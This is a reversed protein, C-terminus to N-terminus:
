GISADELEAEFILVSVGDVTETLEKRWARDYKASTQTLSNGLTFSPASPVLEREPHARKIEPRPMRKGTPGLSLIRPATRWSRWEPSIRRGTLASGLTLFRTQPIEIYETGRRWGEVVADRNLEAANYGRSWTKWEGGEKIFYVGSQVVTIGDHLESSWEGLAKGTPLDLPVTSFIGDTAFMIVESPALCAARLLQARTASTILGAWEIQYFPPRKEDDWGITQALKGYLSNLGLKLAWEAPNGEAKWQQRVDYMSQVWAFPADDYLVRLTFGDLVDVNLGDFTAANDLYACLEYGWVWGDGEPPYYISGDDTRFHFPYFPLLPANKWKWRVHYLGNNEAPPNKSYIWRADKLNPLARMAAPYASNIDYHYIPAELTGYKLVEIRGGSYAVGAGDIVPQPPIAMARKARKARLVAAAAAGPGDWRRVRIGAADLNVMLRRVLAVLARLEAQTYTRIADIERADFQSRRGKMEEIMPLDAYDAGLYERLAKVFSRQYWPYADWVTLRIDRAYERVYFSKRPRYEIYWEEWKVGGQSHLIRLSKEDLDRLWENVDYSGGYIFHKAGPYKFETEVLAHLINRTSLGELAYWDDGESNALLVYPQPVGDAVQLGEGDWAIVRGENAARYQRAADRRKQQRKRAEQASGKDAYKYRRDLARQFESLAALELVIEPAPM